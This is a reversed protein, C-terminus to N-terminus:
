PQNLRALLQRAEASAPDLALAREAEARAASRDKTQRFAEGLAAHAAATEASWVSIKLADIAELVRGNRLHLRGLM